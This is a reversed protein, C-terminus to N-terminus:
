HGLCLPLIGGRDIDGVLLLLRMLWQAVRM